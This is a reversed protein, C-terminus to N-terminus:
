FTEEEIKKLFSKFILQYSKIITFKEISITKISYLQIELYQSIHFNLYVLM